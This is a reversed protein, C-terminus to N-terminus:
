AVTEAPPAPKRAKGKPWGKRKAVAMAAANAEAFQGREAVHIAEIFAREHQGRDDKDAIAECCKVIAAYFPRTTSDRPMREISAKLEAIALRLDSM